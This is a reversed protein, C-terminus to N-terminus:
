NLVAMKVPTPFVATLGKDTELFKMHKLVKVILACQPAIM